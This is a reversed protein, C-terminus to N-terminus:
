RSRASAAAPVPPRGRRRCRWGGSACHAPSAAFCRPSLRPAGYRRRRPASNKSAVRACCPRPARRAPSSRRAAAAPSPPVACVMAPLPRPGVTGGNRIECRPCGRGGAPLPNRPRRARRDIPERITGFHGRDAACPNTPRQSTLEPPSCIPVARGARGRAAVLLRFEDARRERMKAARAADSISRCCASVRIRSGPQVVRHRARLWRRSSARHHRAKSSCLRRAARRSSRAFFHDPRFDALSKIRILGPDGLRPVFSSSFPTQSPSTSFRVLSPRM